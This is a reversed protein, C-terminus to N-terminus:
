PAPLILSTVDLGPELIKFEVLYDYVRKLTAPDLRGNYRPLALTAALEPTLKTFSPLIGVVATKDAAIDAAAVIARQFAAVTKPNKAAFDATVFYGAVPFGAIPGVYSDVVVVAKLTNKVNTVTPEVAWIVDVNGTELAAPMDPFGIEVLTVNQPDVGAQKLTSRVAMEGLSNLTNVAIKKGAMGAPKGELGSGPKALFQTFGPTASDGDAVARLAIGQQNAALFSPWAGFAVDLDRSVLAPIAAAGGQMVETTVTLGEKAFLGRALAIHVPAVDVIPLTGVTLKAVEPEGGSGSSPRGTSGSPSGAATSSGGPGSPSPGGGGCAAAMVLVAAITAASLVARTM